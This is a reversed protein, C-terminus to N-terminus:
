SRKVSHFVGFAVTVVFLVVGVIALWLLAKVIFGVAILVLWLILLAIIVGM